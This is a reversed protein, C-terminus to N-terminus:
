TSRFSSGLLLSVVQLHTACWALCGMASAHRKTSSQATATAWKRRQNRNAFSNHFGMPESVRPSTRVCQHLLAGGPAWGSTRRPGPPEFPVEPKHSPGPGGVHADDALPDDIQKPLVGNAQLHTLSCLDPDALPGDGEKVGSGWEKSGGVGRAYLEGSNSYKPMPTEGGLVDKEPFFFMIVPSGRKIKQVGDGRVEWM